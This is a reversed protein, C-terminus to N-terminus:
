VRRRATAANAPGSGIEPQQQKEGRATLHLM